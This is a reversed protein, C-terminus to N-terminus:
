EEILAAIYQKPCDPIPPNANGPLIQPVPKCGPGLFGNTFLPWQKDNVIQPTDNYITTNAAGLGPTKDPPPLPLYEPRGTLTADCSSVLYDSREQVDIVAICSSNKTNFRCFDLNTCSHCDTYSACSSGSTMKKELCCSPVTIAQHCDDGFCERGELYEELLDNPCVCNGSGSGEGEGTGQGTATVAIIGLALFLVLKM